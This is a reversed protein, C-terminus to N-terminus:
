AIRTAFVGYYNVMTVPQTGTYQLVTRFEINTAITTSVICSHTIGRNNNYGGGANEQVAYVVSQTTNYWYTQILTMNAGATNLYVNGTFAYVGSNPLSFSGLIQTNNNPITIQPYASYIINGITNTVNTGSAASYSYGPIIPKLPVLNESIYVNGWMKIKRDTSTGGITTTDGNIGVIHLGNLVQTDPFLNATIVGNNIELDNGFKMRILTDVNFQTKVTTTGLLSTSSTGTGIAISGTTLNSGITM